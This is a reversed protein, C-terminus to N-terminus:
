SMPIIPHKLFGGFKSVRSLFGDGLPAIRLPDKSFLGLVAIPIGTEGPDRPM